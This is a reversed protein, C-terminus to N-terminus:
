LWARRACPLNSLWTIEYRRGTIIMQYDKLANIQQVKAMIALTDDLNRQHILLFENIVENLQNTPFNTGVEDDRKAIAFKTKIPSTDFGYIRKLEEAKELSINLKQSIHATLHYSGLKFSQLLIFSKPRNLQCKNKGRWLRHAVYNTAVDKKAIIYNM